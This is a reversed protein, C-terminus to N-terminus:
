KSKEYILEGAKEGAMGLGIGAEFSNVVERNFQLRLIGDTLHAYGSLMSQSSLVGATHKVNWIDYRNPNM